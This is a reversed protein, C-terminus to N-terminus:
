PKDKKVLISGNQGKVTVSNLQVANNFLVAGAITQAFQKGENDPYIDTQVVAVNRSGMTVLIDKILDYWSTKYAPNGAGGFNEFMYKKVALTATKSSENPGPPASQSAPTVPQSTPTSAVENKTSPAKDNPTTSVAIVGVIIFLVVGSAVVI